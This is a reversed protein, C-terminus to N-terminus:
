RSTYPYEAARVPPLNIMENDEKMDVAMTTTLPSLSRLPSVRSRNSVSDAQVNALMRSFGPGVRALRDAPDRYPVKRWPQYEARRGILTELNTECSACSWGGLPKKAFMADDGEAKMKVGELYDRIMRELYKLAKRTDNKDAFRKALM